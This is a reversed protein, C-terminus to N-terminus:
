TARQYALIQRQQGAALMQLADCERKASQLAHELASITRAQTSALHDARELSERLLRAEAKAQGFTM